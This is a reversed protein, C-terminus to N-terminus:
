EFVIRGTSALITSRYKLMSICITSKPHSQLGRKGLM